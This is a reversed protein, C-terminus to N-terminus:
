GLLISSNPRLTRFTVSNTRVALGIPDDSLFRGRGPEYYRARYYYLGVEADWERGTFARGSTSAGKMAVGWPDYERELLVSGSASTEQVISGLHDALYYTVVDSSNKRALPEDIGAGQFYRITDARDM